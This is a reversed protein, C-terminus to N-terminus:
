LKERARDTRSGTEAAFGVIFPRDRESAVRRLIDNTKVLDISMGSSRELKTTVVEVPRFDSVAASMVLIDAGRITDMVASEMEQATEVPILRWDRIPSLNTPASILTVEAGRLSAARALAFGMKGSSRNTIFRVPDIPQRTAGATVVVRLGSLDQVTLARRLAHVITPISAMRGTGQEGCALEGADPPVEIVGKDKLYQLKDRFIQNEYMRWNMAPAVLIVGRFTMLLTTLLNDAIGGAFKSVTNLTAPAVLLADAEKTMDVHALPCEFTDGLVRRGSLVELTLPAVFQRSNSTMVVSVGMGEAQLTRVLEPAKYAAIGGTVALIIEKGQVM